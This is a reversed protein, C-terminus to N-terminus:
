GSTDQEGLKQELRRHELWMLACDQQNEEAAWFAEIQPVQCPV